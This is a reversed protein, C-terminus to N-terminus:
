FNASVGIAYAQGRKYQRTLFGGQYTNIEPDLLNKAQGRIKVNKYIDKSFIFDLSSIENEYEDPRGNSGVGVIKPGIANYLLSFSARLPKPEFDLQLNVMYPSQGQLPRQFSTLQSSQFPSIRIDSQIWTYNGGVTFYFPLSKRFELEIGYSSAADINLFTYQTDTTAVVSGNNNLSGFVREIPDVFDKKFYGISWVEGRLPFWELRIGHNRIGSPKLYPNGTFKVGKDVDMWSTKSIERLDPRSTTESYNARLQLEDLINFTLSLAPFYDRTLLNSITRNNDFIKFSQIQQQSEEFRLGTSLDFQRFPTNVNFFYARLKQHASYNDTNNALQYLQAHPHSFMINPNAQTNLDEIGQFRFFFTRLSFNRTRQTQSFGSTLKIGRSFPQEYSMKFNALRDPMHHWSVTNSASANDTELRYAGDIKTYLYMKNDPRDLLAKSNTYSYSLKSKNLSKFTSEGSLQHSQISREFWDLKTRQYDEKDANVGMSETVLDLTNRLIFGNYNVKNKKHKIGLSFLGGLNIKHQSRKLQHHAGRVLTESDKNYSSRQEEGEAWNNSYLTAVNYGVRLKGLKFRNGTSLNLSLRQRPDAKKLDFSNYIKGSLSKRKSVSLTSVNVGKQVHKRLSQPMSRRGTDFGFNDWSGGEYTKLHPGLNETAFSLSTKMYRKAPLTKTTIQIVGGGFEGPMEPSYGKQVIMNEIVGAPFLDLPVVRKSPNPSPIDAGNLLIKSYREGLGRVYVHKGDILSLGTVRRLSGGANSDGAKRIQESGIVDAVTNHNRKMELLANISSKLTPSLVVFEELYLGTPKLTVLRNLIQGQNFSLNDFTQKSYKEHTFSVTHRGPPVPIEFNGREDATAELGLGHVLVKVHGVSKGKSTRVKGKLTSTLKLSSTTQNKNERVIEVKLASSHDELNYNVLTTEGTRM